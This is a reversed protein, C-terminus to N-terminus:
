GDSETDETDRTVHNRHYGFGDDKPANLATMLLEVSEKLDEDSLQNESAGIHFTVTNEFTSLQANGDVLIVFVHLAGNVLMLMNDGRGKIEWTDHRGILVILEGPKGQRFLRDLTRAPAEVLM